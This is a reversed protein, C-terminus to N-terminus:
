GSYYAPAIGWFGQFDVWKATSKRVIVIHFIFEDIISILPTKVVM